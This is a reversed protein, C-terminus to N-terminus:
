LEPPLRHTLYQNAIEVVAHDFLELVLGFDFPWESSCSSRSIM